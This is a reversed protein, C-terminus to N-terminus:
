WCSFVLKKKNLNQKIPEKLNKKQKNKKFVREIYYKRFFGWIDHYM